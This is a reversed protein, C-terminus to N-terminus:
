FVTAVIVLSGTGSAGSADPLEITLTLAEGQVNPGLEVLFDAFLPNGDGTPPTDTYAIEGLQDGTADVGSRLRFIVATADADAGVVCQTHVWVRRNVDTTTIGAITGLVTESDDAPSTPADNSLASIAPGWATTM